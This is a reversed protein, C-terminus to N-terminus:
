GGRPAPAHNRLWDAVDSDLYDYVLEMVLKGWYKPRQHLYGQWGTLRGFEKWLEDPFTKEWQRMEDELYLKLKLRLADEAREYQYGTAEDILAILGIKACAGLITGAQMAIAMQRNTELAGEKGAKVYATCIDLLTEATIGRIQRGSNATGPIVFEIMQESLDDPVYGALPEIGLYGELDGGKPIGTLATTVGTRSIVRRGDDLVYCPIEVDGLVLQGSWRAIPPGAVVTGSASADLPEPVAVLEQPQLDIAKEHALRLLQGHWKAPIVGTKVWYQVTSQKRGLMNALASQGGFKAVVRQASSM